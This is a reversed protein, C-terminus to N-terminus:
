VCTLQPMETQAAWDPEDAALQERRSEILRGFEAVETRCQVCTALHKRGEADIELGADFTTAAGEFIASQAAIPAPYNPGAKAMVFGKAGTFVMAGEIPSRLQLPELKEQRKARWDLKGEICQALLDLAADRLRDPEVVVEVAGVKLAAEHRNNTGGAIWEIANDAGILRSLRITGGWGPYIGLKTEPLGVKAATSMVRFDCALCIELGGGMAFGNIAVCSPYPLSALRNLNANNAGTFPKIEEKSAGFLSTFETIDAGVIFVPKASTVLLGRVGDEGDLADLAEEFDGPEM